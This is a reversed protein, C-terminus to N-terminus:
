GILLYVYLSDTDRSSRKVSASALYSNPRFQIYKAIDNPCLPPLLPSFGEPLGQQNIPHDAPLCINFMFDFGGFKTITGVDGISIGQRRYVTPLTSSPEPLWLPSGRRKAALHQYYIDCGRRVPLPPLDWMQFAGLTFLLFGLSVVARRVPM